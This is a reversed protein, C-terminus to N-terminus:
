EPTDEGDIKADYLVASNIERIAMIFKDYLEPSIVIVTYTEDKFYAVLKDSKKFHTICIIDKIDIKSKIIGFYSYLKGDKIVYRGYVMVSVVLVTLLATLAVIISYTGVKYSGTPLFEILNFINWILGTLSLVLVLSLLVWVTNSYRFRFSKM